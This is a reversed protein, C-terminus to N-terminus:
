RLGGRSFFDEFSEPNAARRPIKGEGIEALDALVMEGHHHVVELTAGALHPSLVLNDLDRFLSNNELPERPYVDLAAGQIRKEQLAHLLADYDVLAARATNIFYASPKMMEFLEASFIGTTEPTVKAAMAIFDSNIAIEKLSSQKTSFSNFVELNQFPDYALVKMGFASALRAISQGIAGFGVLGFNKGLLEVGQFRQFPAGPELSWESTISKRDGSKDSYSVSTLEDTYRLFHHATSINRAVSLMLGITYEAVANANRGPTFIVPIGKQTAYELDVNAAPENRCAVILKLDRAADMVKANLPEFEVIAIEVGILAAILEEESLKRGLVGYGSTKVDFGM